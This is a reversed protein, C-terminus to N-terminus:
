RRAPLPLAEGAAQGRRWAAADVRLARGRGLRLHEAAFRDLAARRAEIAQDIVALATGTSEDRVAAEAARLRAAIADVAGVRFAEHWRRPRGAGHTASLWEIRRLLWAWLTAVAARDRARGALVLAEGAETALTYALCANVDALAGALAVKWPRQRRAVDLPEARADAIPDPDDDAAREADLFEALRHRTILAQAQAAAAAAEHVDPSTALALLKRARDLAKEPTV